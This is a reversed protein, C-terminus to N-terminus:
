NIKSYNGSSLSCHGLLQLRGSIKPVSKIVKSLLENEKDLLPCHVFFTTKRFPNM